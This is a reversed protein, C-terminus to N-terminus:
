ELANMQDKDLEFTEVPSKNFDTYRMWTPRARLYIHGPWATRGRGDPFTAYYVAKLVELEAGQPRDVMGEYQVTREDGPTWGGLVFAVHPNDALNRAKRTTQLSDFVIEFADTVAIGVVAAQVAGRPSVSAQVANRHSRMFALLETRTM